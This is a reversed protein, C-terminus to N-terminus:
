RVRRGTNAALVNVRALDAALLVAEELQLVQDGLNLVPCGVGIELTGNHYRDIAYLKLSYTAGPFALEESGHDLLYEDAGDPEWGNSHEGDCWSPCGLMPPLTEPTDVQGPRTEESREMMPRGKWPPHIM